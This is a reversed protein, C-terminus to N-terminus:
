QTREMSWIGSILVIGIVTVMNEKDESYIMDFDRKRGTGVLNLGKYVICENIRHDENDVVEYDRCLKGGYGMSFNAGCNVM